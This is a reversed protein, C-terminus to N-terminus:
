ERVEKFLNRTRREAQGPKRDEIEGHLFVFFVFGAFALLCILVMM